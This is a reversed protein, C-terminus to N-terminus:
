MLQVSCRLEAKNDPSPTNGTNTLRGTISANAPVLIDLAGSNVTTINAGTSVPNSFLSVFSATNCPAGTPVYGIEFVSTGGGLTYAVDYLFRLNFSTLRRANPGIPHCDYDAPNPNFPGDPYHVGANGVDKFGLSVTMPQNRFALVGSSNVSLHQASTIGSSGNFSSVNKIENNIMDLNSNSSLEGGNTSFSIDQGASFNGVVFPAASDAIIQSLAPKIKMTKSATGDTLLIDGGATQLEIPQSATFHQLKLPAAANNLITGTNADLSFTKTNTTDNLQFAAGASEFILSGGTSSVKTLGSTINASGALPATINIDANTSELNLDTTDATITVAPGQIKDANVVDNLGWNMTSNINVFSNADLTLSGASNLNISGTGATNVNIDKDPTVHTLAISNNSNSTFGTNPNIVMSYGTSFDQVSTEVNSRLNLPGTSANVNIGSAANNKIELPGTQNEILGGSVGNKINILHSGGASELEFGRVKSQALVNGNNQIKVADLAGPQGVQFGQGSGILVQVDGVNGGDLVFGDGAAGSINNVFLGNNITLPDPVSAPPGVAAIDVVPIWGDLGKQYQIGSATDIYTNGVIGNDEDPPGIDALAQTLQLIDSVFGSPNNKTVGSTRVIQSIASM